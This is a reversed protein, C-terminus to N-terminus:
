AHTGAETDPGKRLPTTVEEAPPIDVALLTRLDNDTPDTMAVIRGAQNAVAAEFLNRALRGNGFGKTRPERDFLSRVATLSEGECGYASEACLGCFIAVLEATSYDPFDITRPFRSALGPNSAIFAVMEDPYGAAIVVLDDRHDELLKVLTDIAEQGFDREGGRMLAYAEDILLVGGIASKVVRTVQTATQGVFGAVLGSRDTEVLHGRSVVGLTRYIEALLRAVTTKGTGPNGTFVLHHSHEAVPLGRQRRLRQVQLLNTVLKVEAKVEALGVLADLDDLLEPLPRAPPLSSADPPSAGDRAPDEKSAGLGAAARGRMTALLMSRFGEIARLTFTSPAENLSAVTHAVAMAREYYRWASRGGSRADDACLIDFLVSPKELWRRAGKLLGANRVEAPTALGLMTDFRPGFTEILAWVETDSHLDDGDVVAAALKFAEVTADDAAHRDPGGPLGGSARGLDATVDDIFARVPERLADYDV